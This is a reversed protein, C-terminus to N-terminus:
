EIKHKEIVNGLSGVQEEKNQEKTIRDQEPTRPQLIGSHGSRFAEQIAEIAPVRILTGDKLVWILKDIGEPPAKSIFDSFAVYDEEICMIIDGSRLIIKYQKM